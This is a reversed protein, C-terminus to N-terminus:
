AAERISHHQVAPHEAYAEATLLCMVGDSERGYLRPVRVFAFGFRALQGLTREDDARVRLIAMQCSRHTFAFEFARRITERTFWNVGPLAAAAIEITGNRRNWHYFVIGAVLRGTADCVGISQAGAPFGRDVHPILRAVFRLVIENTRQDEHGYAYHM